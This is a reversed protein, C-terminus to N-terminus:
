FLLNKNLFSKVSKHNDYIHDSCVGYLNKSMESYAVSACSFPPLDQLVVVGGAIHNQPYCWPIGKSTLTFKDKDHWFCHINNDLMLKLADPNKAHCWFKENKLYDLNIEYQPEDHGLFLQEKVLWVDIEVDLGLTLAKQIYQPSNELDPKPGSLNGRHSIFKV